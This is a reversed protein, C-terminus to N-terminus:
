LLLLFVIGVILGPKNKKTSLNAPPDNSVSPIFDPTASIASISPGYIGVDPICCTGKGAWFLHVELYNESVQVKYDKSIARFSSGAEKRIDFEKFILNGQIYIDFIRKGLSRWTPPNLVAIEAFQLKVTYNGNQLGLGYYRLSGASIRTTQILEPDLTNTITSTSSFKYQPNTSGAYRGVNSVAWRKTATVYNTAPGLTENDREYVIGDSTTIQPGGCNISFKSDWSFLAIAVKLVMYPKENTFRKALHRPQNRSKLEGPERNVNPANSCFQVPNSRRSNSRGITFNNVALNLQINPESLWSPFTGSLDNYSLDRNAPNVYYTAPGLTEDDREYLIRDSSMVQTGGCKISFNYYRPSDRNCPFGRQLCNLGSPLFRSNSGEITFNNVALNIQINPESIWSPLTGSLDNYSLDINTLSASKQSPLTGSLKNNGLFLFSLSSLSFLSNPIRGNFNNFSLDIQALNRFGGFDAPISGSINNNRLILVTLSKMEKIFELTSSGNSLDSIRLTTLLTLNSLTMPIPGEFSNGQLRLDNLKSWSGVFDPIRGTLDNDSAWVTALNQLNAFTSPIPGSLGSSSFYIQELKTLSGLESPLPGSFNNSSLSLSRLDTLKGLEKSLKGSLLNTGFSLYQMSALNGVSASLPGTLYNKRLDLSVLSTLNWLEDPIVGVVDLEYVQM